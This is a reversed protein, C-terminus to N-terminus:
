KNAYILSVFYHTKNHCKWSHMYQVEIMNAEEIPRRDVTERGKKEGEV